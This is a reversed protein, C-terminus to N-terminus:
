NLCLARLSPKKDLQAKLKHVMEELQGVHNLM